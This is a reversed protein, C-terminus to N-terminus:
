IEEIDNTLVPLWFLDSLSLSIFNMHDKSRRSTYDEFLTANELKKTLLIRDEEFIIYIYDDNSITGICYRIEM